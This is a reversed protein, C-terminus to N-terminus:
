PSKACLTPLQQEAEGVCRQTGRRAKKKVEGTEGM